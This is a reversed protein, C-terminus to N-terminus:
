SVGRRRYARLVFLLAAVLAIVAVIAGVPYPLLWAAVAAIVILLVVAEILGMCEGKSTFSPRV